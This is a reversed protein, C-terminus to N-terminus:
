FVIGLPCYLNLTDFKFQSIETMSHLLLVTNFLKPLRQQIEQRPLSEPNKCCTLMRGGQWSNEIQHDGSVGAATACLALLHCSGGTHAGQATPCDWHVHSMQHSNEHAGLPASLKDVWPLSSSKCSAKPCQHPNWGPLPAVVEVGLNSPNVCHNVDAWSLGLSM